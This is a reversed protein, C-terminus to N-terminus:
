HDGTGGQDCAARRRRTRTSLRFVGTRWRGPIARGAWRIGLAVASVAQYAQLLERMDEPDLRESLSTAGVLDCFMVTLHRREATDGSADLVATRGVPMPNSLPAACQGCFRFRSPNDAGCRPCAIVLSAACAGCWKLREPNEADCVPCRM